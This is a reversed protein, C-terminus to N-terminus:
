GRLSAEVAHCVTCFSSAGDVEDLFALPDRAEAGGSEVLLGHACDAYLIVRADPIHKQWSIHIKHHFWFM